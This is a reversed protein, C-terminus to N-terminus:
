VPVLQESRKLLMRMANELDRRKVPRALVVHIGLKPMWVVVLIGKGRCEMGPPMEDYLDAIVPLEAIEM